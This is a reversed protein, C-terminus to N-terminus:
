KKLYNKGMRTSISLLPYHVYVAQKKKNQKKLKMAKKWHEFSISLNCNWTCYVLLVGSNATASHCQHSGRGEYIPVVIDARGHFQCVNQIRWTWHHKNHLANFMCFQIQVVKKTNTWLSLTHTHTHTHTLSLPPPYTQTCTHSPICTATAWNAWHQM